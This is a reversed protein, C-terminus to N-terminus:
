RATIARRLWRKWSAAIVRGRRHPAFDRPLQPAPLNLAEMPIPQHSVFSSGAWVGDRETRDNAAFSTWFILGHETVAYVEEIVTAPPGHVCMSLVWMRGDLTTAAAASLRILDPMTILVRQIRM